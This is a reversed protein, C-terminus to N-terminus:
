GVYSDRLLSAALIKALYFIIGRESDQWLRNNQMDACILHGFRTGSMSVRVIMVSCIGHINLADYLNPSENMVFDLSSAAFQDDKILNDIDDVDSAVEMGDTSRMRADNDVFFVDTIHLEDKLVPLAAKLKNPAGDEWEVKKSLAYM